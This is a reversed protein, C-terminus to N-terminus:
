KSISCSTATSECILIIQTQRLRFFNIKLFRKFGNEREDSCPKIIIQAIVYIIMINRLDRKCLGHRAIRGTESVM